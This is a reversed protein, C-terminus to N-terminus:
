KLCIKRKLNSIAKRILQKLKPVSLQEIHLAKYVPNTNICKVIQQFIRFNLRREGSPASQLKLPLTAFIVSLLVYEKSM